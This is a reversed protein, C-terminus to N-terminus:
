DTRLRIEAWAGICGDPPSVVTPPLSPPAPSVNEESSTAPTDRVQTTAEHRIFIRVRRHRVREDVLMDQLLDALMAARALGLETSGSNGAYIDVDFHQARKSRAQQALMELAAEDTGCIRTFADQPTDLGDAFVTLAAAALLSGLLPKCYGTRRTGTSHAPSMRLM